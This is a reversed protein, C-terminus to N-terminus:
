ARNDVPIDTKQAKRRLKQQTMNLPLSKRWIM